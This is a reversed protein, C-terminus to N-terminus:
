AASPIVAAHLIHPLARPAEQRAQEPPAEQSTWLSGIQSPTRTDGHEFAVLVQDDVEPRTAGNAETRSCALQHEAFCSDLAAAIRMQIHM